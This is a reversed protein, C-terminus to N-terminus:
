ERSTLRLQIVANSLFHKHCIKYKKKSSFSSPYVLQAQVTSSLNLHFGKWRYIVKINQKTLHPLVRQKITNREPFTKKKITGKCYSQETHGMKMQSFYHKVKKISVNLLFNGGLLVFCPLFTSLHGISIYM